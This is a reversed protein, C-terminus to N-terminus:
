RRRLFLTVPLAATRIEQSAGNQTDNWLPHVSNDDVALGQYDGIFTDKGAPRPADIGPDWSKKTVRFNHGFTLGDDTSQAVYEDILRNNPDLRRDFWACTFTGNPAVALAPQFQDKGNNIHDHNVRAPDSWTVGGDTSRSVLIDADTTGMNAWGVVLAGDHPSVAFTPLSLNRFTGQGLHDPLGHVDQIIGSTTSPPAFTQGGDTSVAMDLFDVAGSDNRGAAWVVYVQGKPGVAPIAGINFTPSSASVPVPKSFTLPQGPTQAAHALVIPYPSRTQAAEAAPRDADPGDDTRADRNDDLNWAVYINGATPGSTSQDVAIWPKDSFTNGSDDLFVPVPTSFTKGGNKSESVFVGSRQTSGGCSKFDCALVAVFVHGKGDFAMSVDSTTGYGDFGPLLGSDHWTRGGDMSYFTGIKFKYHAPDSFFKSGAVLNNPNRPNEAIAPESHALFSDHSV